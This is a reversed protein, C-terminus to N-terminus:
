FGIVKYLYNYHVNSDDNQFNRWVLLVYSCIMCFIRQLYYM